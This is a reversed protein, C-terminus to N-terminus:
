MGFRWQMLQEKCRLEVLQKLASNPMKLNTLAIDSAFIKIARLESDREDQPLRGLPLGYNISNQTVSAQLAAVDCLRDAVIPDYPKRVLAIGLLTIASFVAIFIQNTKTM